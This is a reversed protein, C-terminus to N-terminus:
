QSVYSISHKLIRVRRKRDDLDAQIRDFTLQCLQDNPNERRTRDILDQCNKIDEEASSLQEYIEPPIEM